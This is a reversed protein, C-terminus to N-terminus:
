EDTSPGFKTGPPPMWADAFGVSFSGDNGLALSRLFAGIAFVGIIGTVTLLGVEGELMGWAAGTNRVRIIRVPWDASPWAEGPAVKAVVIAKTIQDLAM